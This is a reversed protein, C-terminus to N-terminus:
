RVEHTVRESHPATDTTLGLKSALFRADDEGALGRKVRQLVLLTELMEDDQQQKQYDFREVLETDM